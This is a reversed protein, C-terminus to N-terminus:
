GGTAVSRVQEVTVTSANNGWAKRVYSIVAAIEQNSLTDQFAPM